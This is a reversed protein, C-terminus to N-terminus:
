LWISVVIRDWRDTRDFEVRPTTTENALGPCQFDCDNGRFHSDVGGAKPSASNVSQIGAKAPIVPTEFHIRRGIVGSGPHAFSKKKSGCRMNQSKLPAGPSIAFPQTPPGSDHRTRLFPALKSFLEACPPLSVQAVLVGLEPQPQRLKFAQAYAARVPQHLM